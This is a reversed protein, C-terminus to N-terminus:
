RHTAFAPQYPKYWSGTVTTEALASQMADAGPQASGQVGRDAASRQAGTVQNHAQLSWSTDDFLDRLSWKLCSEGFNGAKGVVTSVIGAVSSCILLVDVGGQQLAKLHGHLWVLVPVYNLGHCCDELFTSCPLVSPRRRGWSWEASPTKLLWNVMSNPVRPTDKVWCSVLGDKATAWHIM